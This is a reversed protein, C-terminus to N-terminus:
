RVCQFRETKQVQAMLATTSFLLVVALSLKYQITRM